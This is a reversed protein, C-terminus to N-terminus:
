GGDGTKGTQAAKPEDKLGNAIKDIIKKLDEPEPDLSRAHNWKFGAELKRGVKWYADGLHDNIVPDGPMLAVAKELEKVALEYQGLRYHGWGLSDIIYGERGETLDVADKLMAFAEDINEHRDVWTYALYNLVQARERAFPQGPRAKPLLALVDKFDKEAMPWQKAREHSVGRGYLLDWNEPTIMGAAEVAKSYAAVAEPWRKQARHILAATRLLDIDKPKDKLLTEVLKLAEEPKEMRQLARVRRVDSSPRLASKQPVTVYVDLARENQGLGEFAQALAAAYVPSDPALHNAFQLFMVERLRAEPSPDGSDSLLFFLEAAGEQASRMPLAPARGARLDALPEAIMVQGPIRKDIEEYIALAGKQDGQNALFRAYADAVRLERIEREYARKLAPGAVKPDNAIIGILGGFYDALAQTPQKEIPKLAALAEKPRGAGLKAFAKLILVSPDPKDDSQAAQDLIRNATRFRRQQMADVALATRALLAIEPDPKGRLMRDAIVFADKLDGNAIYALLAQRQLAPDTPDALLAQRLFQSQANVDRTNEAVVAALYNGAPTMAAPYPQSSPARASATGLGGALALMVMATTIRMQMIRRQEIKGNRRVIVVRNRDESTNRNGFHVIRCRKGLLSRTIATQLM